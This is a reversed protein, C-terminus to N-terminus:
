WQCNTLFPRRARLESMHYIHHNGRSQASIQHYTRKESLSRAQRYQSVQVKCTLSGLRASRMGTSPFHRRTRAWMHRFRESLSPIKLKGIRSTLSAWGTGIFLEISCRSELRSVNPLSQNDAKSLTYPRTKSNKMEWSLRLEPQTIIRWEAM